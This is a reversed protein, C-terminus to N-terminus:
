VLGTLALNFLADQIPYIMGGVISGGLSGGIFFLLILIMFGYQELPALVPRWFDPLIGMLIKHGDLPPIPIANFSALLINVWIFWSMFPTIQGLDIGNRIVIQFPVAMILAQAVNSLPGAAAVLLMGQHRKGAWRGRFNGPQVPVPKGWGIFPYGIAILVMGIFGFPEFHALPNLTIRGLNKGTDDGLKHATWAHMCEHITIAIVFSLLIAIIDDLPRTSGM